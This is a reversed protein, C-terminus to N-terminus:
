SAHAGIAFLTELGLFKLVMRIGEEDKIATNICQWTM